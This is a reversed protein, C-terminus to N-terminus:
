KDILQSAARGLAETVRATRRCKRCGRETLSRMLELKEPFAASSVGARRIETLQDTMRVGIMTNSWCAVPSSTRRNTWTFGAEDRSLLGSEDALARFAAAPTDLARHLV